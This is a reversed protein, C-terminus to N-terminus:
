SRASGNKRSALTGAALVALLPIMPIRFRYYAFSWSSLALLYAAPLLFLAAGEPKGALTLRITGLLAGGYTLGLLLATVALPLWLVPHRRLHALTGAGALKHADTVPADPKPEGPWWVSALQDTGPGLLMKLGAMAHLRLATGPHAMLIPKFLGRMRRSSEFPDQEAALPADERELRGRTEAFSKGEVAALIAGGEWYYLNMGSMSSLEFAGFVSANRACWLGVPLVSSLAFALVWLRRKTGWLALLALSWPLWLYVSVPRTLVSLGLLLGAGAAAGPGKARLLLWSCLVTLFVFLPETILLPAHTAAVPDLAYLLGATWALPHPVLLMAADATLAASASDLLCQTFGPFRPSDTLARHLVLFVPYGPTRESDPKGDEGLFRGERLLSDAPTTYTQTDYLHAASPKDSLRAWFALRPLLAVGAVLLLAQARPLRMM